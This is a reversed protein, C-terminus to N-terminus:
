NKKEYVGLAVKYELSPDYKMANSEINFVGEWPSIDIVPYIIKGEFHPPMGEQAMLFGTQILFLISFFYKIM